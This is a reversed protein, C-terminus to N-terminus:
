SVLGVLFNIRDGVSPMGVEGAYVQKPDLGLQAYFEPPTLGAATLLHSEISLKIKDVAVAPGRTSKHISELCDECTLRPSGNVIEVGQFTAM